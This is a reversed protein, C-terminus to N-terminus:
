IEENLLKTLHGSTSLFNVLKAVEAEVLAETAVVPPVAIVVYASITGLINPDTGDQQVSDFRVLHRRVGTNKVKEHSVTLVQPTDLDLGAVRYSGSASSRASLDYTVENTAAPTPLDPSLDQPDTFSM